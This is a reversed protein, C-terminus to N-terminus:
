SLLKEKYSFLHKTPLEIIENRLFFLIIVYM